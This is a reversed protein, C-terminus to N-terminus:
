IRKLCHESTWRHLLWNLIEVTKPRVTVTVSDVIGMVVNHFTYTWWSFLVRTRKQSHSLITLTEERGVRKAGSGNTRPTQWAIENWSSWTHWLCTICNWIDLMVMLNLRRRLFFDKLEILQPSQVKENDTRRATNQPFCSLFIICRFFGSAVVFKKISYCGVILLEM